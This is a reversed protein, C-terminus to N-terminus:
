RALEVLARYAQPPDAQAFISSAAVLLTAGHARLREVNAPGVGGDVQIHVRQPLLERLRAVREFAAEQFPQGSYGPHISMCLVLDADGAVAAVADPATEPNFAVGAELGRGRAAAIAAAVDDVAEYHFTVSDGGAARVAEFYKAPREVMLHVDMAGGAAHVLPSVAQLVIPGMTIPEVFHGDGVDFHFVRCGVALLADVQQGLRAFDAGYLSPEVEVERVWESWGV